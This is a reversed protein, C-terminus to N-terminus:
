VIFALFESTTETFGSKSSDTSPVQLGLSPCSHLATGSCKRHYNTLLLDWDGPGQRPPLSRLSQALLTGEPLYGFTGGAAQSQGQQGLHPFPLLSM